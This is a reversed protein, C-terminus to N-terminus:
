ALPSKFLEGAHGDLPGLLPSVISAEGAAEQALRYVEGKLAYVEVRESEPDVIWYERVGYRALLQMKRGRDTSATAPSIVEIALDPPVRIVTRNALQALREAEFYLVDPQVVNYESFVIDLPAACTLGRETRPHHRLWDEINMAVIQHLPLPSPVVFVEGDYLEYRRGDEPQQCLDTYSVQPRVVKEVLAM